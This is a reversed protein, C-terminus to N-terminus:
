RGTLPQLTRAAVEWPEIAKELADLPDGDAAAAAAAQHACGGGDGDGGGDAAAAVAAAAAAAATRLMRPAANASTVEPQAALCTALLRLSLVRTGLRVPPLGSLTSALGLPSSASPGPDLLRLGVGRPDERTWLELCELAAHLAAAAGDGDGGFGTSSSLSSSAAAGMAAATGGTAAGPVVGALGGAAASSLFEDDDDDDDLFAPAAAGGADDFDMDMADFGMAAASSSPGAASGGDAGSGAAGGGAGGGVAGGGGSGGSGGPQSSSPSIRRRERLHAGLLWVGHLMTQPETAMAVHLPEPWGPRRTRWRGDAALPSLALLCSRLALLVSLARAWAAAANTM